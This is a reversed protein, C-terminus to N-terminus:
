NEGDPRPTYNDRLVKQVTSTDVGFKKGIERQTKFQSRMKKIEKCQSVTLKSVGPTINKGDSTGHYINSYHSRCYGQCYSKKNCGPKNCTNGAGLSM